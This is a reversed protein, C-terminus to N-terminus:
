SAVCAPRVRSRHRALGALGGASRLALAGDAHGASTGGGAQGTCVAVRCFCLSSANRSFGCGM